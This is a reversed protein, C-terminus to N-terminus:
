SRPAPLRGIREVLLDFLGDADVGRVVTCNPRRGTAGWWDVITMGMTAESGIEVAVHCARGTFLAPRLVYAIVCPDHLPAGGMGYRDLDYREFFELLGTVADGM